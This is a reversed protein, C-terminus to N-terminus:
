RWLFNMGRWMMQFAAADILRYVYQRTRSTPFYIVDGPQARLDLVEFKMVKGVNVVIRDKESPAGPRSRLIIAKNNSEPTTGGAAALLQLFEIGEEETIDVMGPKRIAGMVFVKEPQIVRVTEGGYLALEQIGNVGQSFDATPIRLTEPRGGDKGSRTVLIEAGPNELGGAKGIADLLTTPGVAPFVVPQRVSGTVRVPNGHAERVYVAVVPAVLLGEAVLAQAIAEEAEVYTLGVVSTAKKFIPLRITGDRAVRVTRAFEPAEYVSVQLLDYLGIRYEPYPASFLSVNEGSPDVTQFGGGRSRGPLATQEPSGASDFTRGVGGAPRSATAPVAFPTIEQALVSTGALLVSLWLGGARGIGLRIMETLLNRPIRM